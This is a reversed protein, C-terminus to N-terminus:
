QKGQLAKLQEKMQEVDKQYLSLTESAREVAAAKSGGAATAISSAESGGAPQEPANLEQILAAEKKTLVEAMSKLEDIQAAKAKKVQDPLADIEDSIEKLDNLSAQITGAVKGPEPLAAGQAPKTAAADQAAPNTIGNATSSENQCATFAFAALLSFLLKKM